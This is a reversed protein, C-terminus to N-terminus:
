RVDIKNQCKDDTTCFKTGLFGEAPPDRMYRMICQQGGTLPLEHHTVLCGHALEHAIVQNIMKQEWTDPIQEKIKEVEITCVYSPFCPRIEVFSM